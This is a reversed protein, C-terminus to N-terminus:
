KSLLEIFEKMDKTNFIAEAQNITSDVLLKRNWLGFRGIQVIKKMALEEILKKRTDTDLSILKGTKWEYSQPCLTDIHFMKLLHSIKECDKETIKEISELSAIGNLISVRYPKIYQEPIYLSIMWNPVIGKVPFNSVFIPNSKFEYGELCNIPVLSVFKDLPITSILTNYGIETFELTVTNQYMVVKNESDIKIVTSDFDFNDLGSYDAMEQLLENLSNKSSMYARERKGVDLISSPHQIDRVKESYELADTLSASNKIDGVSRLIGETVTIEKLSPTFPLKPISHLYHVGNHLNLPLSSSSEIVKFSDSTKKAWCAAGLGGAGSGLIVVDYKNSM